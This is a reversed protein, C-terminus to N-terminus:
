DQESGYEELYNLAREIDKAYEVWLDIPCEREDWDARAMMVGCGREHCSVHRCRVLEFRNTLIIVSNCGISGKEPGSVVLGRIQRARPDRCRKEHKCSNDRLTGYTAVTILPFKRYLKRELIHQIMAAAIFGGSRIVEARVEFDSTANSHQVQKAEIGKPTGQNTDPHSLHFYIRKDTPLLISLALGTLTMVALAQPLALEHYYSSLWCLSTVFSGFLLFIRVM